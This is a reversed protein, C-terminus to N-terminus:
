QELLLLLPRRAVRARRHSPPRNGKGDRIRHVLLLRHLLLHRAVRRAEDSAGLVRLPLRAAERGIEAM